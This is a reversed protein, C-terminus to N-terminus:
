FQTPQMHDISYKLLAKAWYVKLNLILNYNIIKQISKLIRILIQFAILSVFLIAYVPFCFM